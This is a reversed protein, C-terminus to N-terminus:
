ISIVDVVPVCPGVKTYRSIEIFDSALAQLDLGAYMAAFIYPSHLHLVVRNEPVLQQLM